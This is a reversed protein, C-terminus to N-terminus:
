YLLVQNLLPPAPFSVRLTFPFVCVAVGDRRAGIPTWTCYSVPLLVFGSVMCFGTTNPCFQTSMYLSTHVLIQAHRLQYGGRFMDTDLVLGLLVGICHYPTMPLHLSWGRHRSLLYLMSFYGFHINPGSQAPQDLIM